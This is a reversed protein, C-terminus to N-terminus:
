SRDGDALINQVIPNQPPKLVKEVNLPSVKDRKWLPKEPVLRKYIPDLRARHM